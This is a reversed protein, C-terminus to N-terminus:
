SSAEWNAFFVPTFIGMALYALSGPEFLIRSKPRQLRSSFKRLTVGTLFGLVFDDGGISRALM